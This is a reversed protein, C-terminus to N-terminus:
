QKFPRAISIRIREQSPTMGDSYNLDRFDRDRVSQPYRGNQYSLWFVFLPSIDITSIYSSKWLSGFEDEHFSALVCEGKL